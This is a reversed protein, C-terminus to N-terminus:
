GRGVPGLPEDTNMEHIRHRQHFQDFQYTANGSIIRGEIRGLFEDGLEALVDRHRFIKRGEDDVANQQRHDVLCNIRAILADPVDLRDIRRHLKAGMMRHPWQFQGIEDTEISTKRDHLNQMLPQGVGFVTRTRQEYFVDFGAPQPAFGLATEVVIAAVFRNRRALAHDPFTPVPKGVFIMRRFYDVGGANTLAQRIIQDRSLPDRTHIYRTQRATDQRRLGAIGLLLDRSRDQFRVDIGLSGRDQGDQPGSRLGRQGIDAGANAAIDVYRGSLTREPRIDQAEARRSRLNSRQSPMARRRRMRYRPAPRVSDWPCGMFNALKSILPALVQPRISPLSATSRPATKRSRKGSKFDAIAAPAKASAALAAALAVRCGSALRVQSGTIGLGSLIRQM